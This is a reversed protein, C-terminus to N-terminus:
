GLSFIFNADSGFAVQFLDDSRETLQKLKMVDDKAEDILQQVHGDDDLLVDVPVSAALVSPAFNHASSAYRPTSVSQRLSDAVANSEIL